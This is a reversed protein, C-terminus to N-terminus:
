QEYASSAFGFFDTNAFHDSFYKMAEVSLEKIYKFNRYAQKEQPGAGDRAGLM